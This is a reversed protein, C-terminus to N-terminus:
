VDGMLRGLDDLFGTEACEDGVLCALDAELLGTEACMIGLLFGIGAGVLRGTEVCVCGVPCGLNVSDGKSQM